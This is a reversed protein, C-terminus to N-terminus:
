HMESGGFGQPSMSILKKCDRQGVSQPKGKRIEMCQVFFRMDSQQEGAVEGLRLNNKNWEIWQNLPVGHIMKEKKADRKALAGKNRAKRAVKHTPKEGTISKSEQEKSYISPLGEAESTRGAIGESTGHTAVKPSNNQDRRENIKGRSSQTNAQQLDLPPLEAKQLFFWFGVVVAVFTGIILTDKM